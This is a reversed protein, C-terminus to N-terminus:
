FVKLTPLPAELKNLKTPTEPKDLKVNYNDKPWFYPKISTSKFSTLNSLLQVCYMENKVALLCYPRTWKNSERWILVESNLPLNYVSTM